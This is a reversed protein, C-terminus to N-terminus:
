EYNEALYGIQALSVGSDILYDVVNEFSSSEDEILSEDYISYPATEPILYRFAIYDIDDEEAPVGATKKLIVTACLVIAVFSAALALYPSVRTWVTVREERCSAPIASLRKELGEFYGEPARFIRQQIQKRNDMMEKSVKGAM